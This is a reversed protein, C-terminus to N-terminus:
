DAAHLDRHQAITTYRGNSDGLDIDYYDSPVIADKPNGPHLTIV